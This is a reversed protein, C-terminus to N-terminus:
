VCSVKLYIMVYKIQVGSGTLWKMPLCVPLCFSFNFILSKVKYSYSFRIDENALEWIKSELIHTYSLIDM